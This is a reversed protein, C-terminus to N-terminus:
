SSIRITRADENWEITAGAFDAIFQLPVLLTDNHMIGRLDEPWFRHINGNTDRTVSIGGNSSVWISVNNKTGTITFSHEREEVEFDLGLAEFLELAPVMNNNNIIIPYEGLSLQVDNVTIDIAPFRELLGESQLHAIFTDIQRILQRELIPRSRSVALPSPLRTPLGSSVSRGPTYFVGVEVDNVHEALMSEIAWVFEQEHPRFTLRPGLWNLHTIGVGKEVDFLDFELSDFHGRLMMSAISVSYTLDEWPELVVGPPPTADFNLGAAELRARIINFAEQETLHAMYFSSGSGGTHLRVLLNEQSYGRYSGQTYGLSHVIGYPFIDRATNRGVGGASLALAGILGLGAIIATNKRWRSPMKTLLAANDDDFTPIEPATYSEIPSVCLDFDKM